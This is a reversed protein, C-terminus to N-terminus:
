RRLWWLLDLFGLWILVPNGTLIGLVILSLGIM